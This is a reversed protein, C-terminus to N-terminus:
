MTRINCVNAKGTTGSSAHIRVVEDMPVAFLGYPYNDRLDTKSTFPLKELDKATRIDGPQAGADDFMKKYFPVRDYTYRVQERLREDQLARLRETDMTEITENWYM